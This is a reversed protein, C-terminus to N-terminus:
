QPNCQKRKLNTRAILKPWNEKVTKENTKNPVHCGGQWIKRDKKSM